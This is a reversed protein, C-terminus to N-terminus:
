QLIREMLATLSKTKVIGQLEEPLDLPPEEKREKMKRILLLKEEPAELIDKVPTETVWPLLERIEKVSRNDCTICTM